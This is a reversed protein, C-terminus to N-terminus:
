RIRELQVVENTLTTDLIKIVGTASIEGIVIAGDFMRLANFTVIDDPSVILKYVDYGGDLLTTYNNNTPDIKVLVNKPTGTSIGILYYYNDSSSDRTVSDLNFTSYPIVNAQNTTENYLEYVYKYSYRGTIIIRKKNKVKLISGTNNPWSSYVDSYERITFPDGAVEFIKPYNYGITWYYLYGNFGSWIDMLEDTIIEYGGNNKRYRMVYSDQGDRARYAINGNKDVGYSHVFHNPASVTAISVNEINAVSLKKIESYFQSGGRVGQSIFYINGTSDNGIHEGSFLTGQGYVAPMDNTYKYCAGTESNVLYNGVSYRVIFFKDNLVYISSPTMTETYVSDEEDYYTVEEVKGNDTIKYLDDNGTEPSPAIFVTHANEIDMRALALFGQNGDDNGGDDSNNDNSDSNDGNNSNNNGNSGNNCSGIVVSLALIFGVLAWVINRKWM